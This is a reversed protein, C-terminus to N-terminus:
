GVEVKVARLLHLGSINLVAGHLDMLKALEVPNLLPNFPLLTECCKQLIYPCCSDNDDLYTWLEDMIERYITSQWMGKPFREKVKQLYAAFIGDSSEPVRV